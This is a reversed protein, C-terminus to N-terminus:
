AAIDLNHPEQEDGGLESMTILAKAIQEKEKPSSNPLVINIADRFQYGIGILDLIDSIVGVTLKIGRKIVKPDMKACAKMESNLVLDSYSEVDQQNNSRSPASKECGSNIQPYSIPSLYLDAPM